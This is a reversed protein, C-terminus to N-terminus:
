TVGRVTTRTTFVLQYYVYGAAFTAGTGEDLQLQDFGACPRFGCLAAFVGDIVEAAGEATPLTDDLIAGTVKRMKLIVGWRQVIQQVMGQAIAQAPAYGDFVVYVAPDTGPADVVAGADVATGVDVTLRDRLRTVIASGPDLFGM